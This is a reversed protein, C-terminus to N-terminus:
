PKKAAKIMVDANTAVMRLVHEPNGTEAGYEADKITKLLEQIVVSIDGEYEVIRRRVFRWFCAVLADKLIKDDVLDCLAAIFRNSCDFFIDQPSSGSDAELLMRLTVLELKVKTFTDTQPCAACAGLIAAYATLDNERREPLLPPAITGVGSRVEVLSEAALSQIVQRVPTRSVGFEHAIKGEFLVLDQAGSHLVIRRRLTSKIISGRQQM